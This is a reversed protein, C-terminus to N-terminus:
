GLAKGQTALANLKKHLRYFQDEFDTLSLVGIATGCKACRIVEIARESDKPLEDKATLAKHTCPM